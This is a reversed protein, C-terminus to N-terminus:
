ARIVLICEVLMLTLLLEQILKLELLLHLSLDQILHTAHILLRM